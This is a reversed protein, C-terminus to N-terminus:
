SLGMGDGSHSSRGAIVQCCFSLQLYYLSFDSIYPKLSSIGPLPFATLLLLKWLQTVFDVVLTTLWDCCVYFVCHVLLFVVCICTCPAFRPFIVWCLRSQSQKQLQNTLCTARTTKLGIVFSVLAFCAQFAKSAGTSLWETVSM